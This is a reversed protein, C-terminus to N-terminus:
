SERLMFGSEIRRKGLALDRLMAKIQSYCGWERQVRNTITSEISGTEYIIDGLYKEKKSNNMEKDHAKLEPCNENKKGTHMRSCKGESLETKNMEMIAIKTSNSTVSSNSCKTVSVVGIVMGLIPM